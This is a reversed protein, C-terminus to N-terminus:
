KKEKGDLPERTCTLTDKVKLTRYEPKSKLSRCNKIQFALVLFLKKQM